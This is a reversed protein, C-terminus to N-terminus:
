AIAVGRAVEVTFGGAPSPDLFAGPGRQSPPRMAPPGKLAPTLAGSGTRLFQRGASCSDDSGIRNITGSAEPLMERRRGM